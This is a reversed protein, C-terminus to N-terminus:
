KVGSQMQFLLKKYAMENSWYVKNWFPRWKLLRKNEQLNATTVENKFEM